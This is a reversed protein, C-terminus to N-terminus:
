KSQHSHSPSQRPPKAQEDGRKGDWRLQRTSPGFAKLFDPHGKCVKYNWLGHFSKYDASFQVMLFGTGAPDKWTFSVETPSIIQPDTLFGDCSDGFKESYSGTIASGPVNPNYFFQTVMPAGERNNKFTRKGGIIETPISVRGVYQGEMKGLLAYTSKDCTLDVDFTKDARAVKVKSPKLINKLTDGPKIGWGEARSGAKVTAVLRGGKETNGGLEIGYKALDQTVQKDNTEVKGDLRKQQDASTAAVDEEEEEPEDTASGSKAQDLPPKAVTDSKVGNPPAGSPKEEEAGVGLSSLSLVACLVILSVLFPKCVVTAFRGTPFSAFGFLASVGPFKREIKWAGVLELLPVNYSFGGM